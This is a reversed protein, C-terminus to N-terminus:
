RAREILRREAQARDCATVKRREGTRRNRFVYISESAGSFANFISDGASVAQKEIFEWQNSDQSM